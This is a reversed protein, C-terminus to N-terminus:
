LWDLMSCLWKEPLNGPNLGPPLLRWKECRDCCVWDEKVLAPPVAASAADLVPVGNGSASVLQPTPGPGVGPYVLSSPKPGKKGIKSEKSSVNSELSGKEAVNCDKPRDMSPKEEVAMDEGDELEPYLEGFFDKYTERVKGNNKLDDVKSGHTNNRNKSSSDSKFGVKPVEVSQIGNELSQSGKSKKKGGSSSTALKMGDKEHSTAKHAAKQKLPKVLQTDHIKGGGKSVDSDSKIPFGSHKEDSNVNGNKKYPKEVRFDDHTSVPDLSEEKPVVSPEGKFTTGKRFDLVNDHTDSLLPLKLANSVVDGCSLNDNVAEKKRAEVSAIKNETKPKKECFINRDVKSESKSVSFPTEQSQKYVSGCSSDERKEKETLCLLDYPLPSLLGGLVPFSTM